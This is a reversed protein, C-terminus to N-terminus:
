AVAVRVSSSSSSFLLLRLDLDHNDVISENSMPSDFAVGFEPIWLMGDGIMDKECTAQFIDKRKKIDPLEKANDLVCPLGISKKNNNHRYCQSNWM